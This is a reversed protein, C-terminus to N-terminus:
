GLFVPVSNQREAQPNSANMGCGLILGCFLRYNFTIFSILNVTWSLSYDM